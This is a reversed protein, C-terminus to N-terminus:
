FVSSKRYMTIWVGYYLKAINNECKPAMAAAAAVRKKWTKCLSPFNQSYVSSWRGWDISLCRWGGEDEHVDLERLSLNLSISFSFLFFFTSFLFIFQCLPLSVSFRSSSALLFLPDPHFFSILFLLFTLHSLSLCLLLLRVVYSGEYQDM